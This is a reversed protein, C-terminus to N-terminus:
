RRDKWEYYAMLATATILSVGWMLATVAVCSGIFYVLIELIHM